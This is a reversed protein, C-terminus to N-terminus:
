PVGFYGASTWWWRGHRRSVEVQCGFAASLLEDRLVEEPSGVAAVQGHALLLVASTDPLVEELHHTVCVVTLRPRQRKADAIRALLAERSAVDLGSSPEDLLLLEPEGVLARALLVRRQEGTSLTAFPQRARDALGVESLAAQAGARQHPTPCEHELIFRGSYGGLVVYHATAQPPALESALSDVMGIRERLAHVRIAGLAGGLIRATGSHPHLYGALMRLLTTKGCGNPGLVIAVQGIPLQWNIDRLVTRGDRKALIQQLDVAWPGSDGAASTTTERV